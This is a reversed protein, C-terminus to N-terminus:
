QTAGTQSTSPRWLALTSLIDRGQSPPVDFRRGVARATEEWVLPVTPADDHLVRQLNRLASRVQEDTHARRVQEVAAEAGEYGHDVFRDLDHGGWMHYLQNTGYGSMVPLLFADFDGTALREGLRTPAEPELVLDVGVNAYARQLRLAVRELRPVDNRYLCTLRFRSPRGDSRTEPLRARDFLRRALAPDFAYPTVSSDAAWHRPWVPGAAVLGRGGFDRALLDERDVAHNLARRVDRSRLAPHRVNLGMTIAYPRLFPRVEIGSTQQLFPLAEGSVEYLLDIEDRMLASWAARPSDYRRIVVSRILSPAATSARSSSLTPSSLPDVEGPQAMFPGATVARSLTLAELLLSSPQRLEIRLTVPDVSVIREVDLLGTPPEDDIQARISAAVDEATVPVGDHRRVDPRVSFHWIRGDASSSWKQLLGPTPRGDPGTGVLRLTTLAQVIPRVDVHQSPLGITITTRVDASRVDPSSQACGIAGAQLLGCIVAQGVAAHRRRVGLRGPLSLSFPYVVAHSAPRDMVAPM